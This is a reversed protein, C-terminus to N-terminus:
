GGAGFVVSTYVEHDCLDPFVVDGISLDTGTTASRAVIGLSVIPLLLLLLLNHHHHHHYQHHHHHHYQHHHHHLILILLALLLFLFVLLGEWSGNKSSLMDM